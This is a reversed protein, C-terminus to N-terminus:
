YRSLDALAIRREEEADKRKQRMDPAQQPQAQPALPTGLALPGMGGYLAALDMTAGQAPGKSGYSLPSAPAAQSTNGATYPSGRLEFHVGDKLSKWDGGWVFDGLGRQAAIQKAADALPRYAEFDWNPQGDPGVIHVDLANGHLHRSNMTQSKGQAVMQEQRARDRMGESIQIPINTQQSAALLIEPLVPNVGYLRSLSTDNWGM